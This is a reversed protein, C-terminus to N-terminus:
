QRYYTSLYHISILRYKSSSIEDLFNEALISIRSISGQGWDPHTSSTNKLLKEVFTPYDTVRKVPKLLFYSLPM